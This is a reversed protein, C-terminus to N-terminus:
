SKGWYKILNCQSGNLHIMFPGHTIHTLNLLVTNVLQEFMIRMNLLTYSFLIFFYHVAFTVTSMLTPFVFCSFSTYRTEHIDICVRHNLTPVPFLCSINFIRYLIEEPRKSKVKYHM